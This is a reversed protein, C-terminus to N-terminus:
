KAEKELAELEEKSYNYVQNCFHCQAEASGEEEIMSRIENAGLSVIADAFREKSCRCQFAVPMTDLIKMQDEGLLEYLLEEPTLGKQILESVPAISKLREEIKVITEEDTNPLLQIIFGGAALISNDPNVLVGLGVSSPVQESTVFYYTFDEGLEGSVLPVQGSFKEKLGLDKVVTIFGNKGVAAGVNLKGEQFREEIHTRPNAVYGRVEGKANSDIIMHGLPGDAEIKITILDDGKMMAGMMVGATM